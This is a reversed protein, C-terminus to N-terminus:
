PPASRPRHRRTRRSPPCSGGPASLRPAAPSSARPFSGTPGPLSIERRAQLDELAAVDRPRRRRAAVAAVDLISIVLSCAFWVGGRRCRRRSAVRSPRRLSSARRRASSADRLRRRLEAGAVLARRHGCPATGCRRRPPGGGGGGDGRWASEVLEDREVGRRRPVAARRAARGRLHRLQRLGRALAPRRGAHVCRLVVGAAYVDVREDHAAAAILEPALYDATGVVNEQVRDPANYVQRKLTKATERRLSTLVDRVDDDDDDSEDESDDDLGGSTPRRVSEGFDRLKVTGCDAVLFNELKVDRHWVGKAHAYAIGSLVDITCRWRAEATWTKDSTRDRIETALDHDCFEYVACVAPPRVCLGHLYVVNRHRLGAVIGIERGIKEVDEDCLEM